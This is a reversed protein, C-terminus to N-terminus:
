DNSNRKSNQSLELTPYAGEKLKRILDFFYKDVYYAVKVESLITLYYNNIIYQLNNSYQNFLAEIHEEDLGNVLYKILNEHYEEHNVINQIPNKSRYEWLRCLVIRNIEIEIKLKDIDNPINESELALPPIVLNSNVPEYQETQDIEIREGM